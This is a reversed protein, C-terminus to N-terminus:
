IALIPNRTYLEKLDRRLEKIYRSRNHYKHPQSTNELYYEQEHIEELLAEVKEEDTFTAYNEMRASM